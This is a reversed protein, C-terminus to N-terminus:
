NSLKKMKEKKIKKEIQKTKMKLKNDMKKVM